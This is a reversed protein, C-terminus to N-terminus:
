TEDPNDLPDLFRLLEDAVRATHASLLSHGAGEIPVLTADPLASSLAVAHDWPSDEDQVGHLLLTPQRIRHLLPRQDSGRIAQWTWAVADHDAAHRLGLRAERAAIERLLAEGEGRFWHAECLKPTGSLLVLKRPQPGKAQAVYDLVVSVGMSWGALAFPEDALHAQAVERVDSAFAQLAHAGAGSCRRALGRGRLNPLVFRFHESLREAVPLWADRTGQIGHLALVTTPGDGVFVVDM